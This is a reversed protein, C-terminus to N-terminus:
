VMGSVVALIILGLVNNIVATGLVVKAESIINKRFDKILRAAICISKACFCVAQDKKSFV